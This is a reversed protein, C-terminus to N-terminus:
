AQWRVTLIRFLSVGVLISCVLVSLFSLTVSSRALVVMQGYQDADLLVVQQSESDAEVSRAIADLKAGMATLREDAKADGDAMTQVLTDTQADISNNVNTLLEMNQKIVRSDADMAVSEAVDDVIQVVADSLDSQTITDAASSEM